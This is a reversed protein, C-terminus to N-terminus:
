TTPPIEEVVHVPVLVSSLENGEELSAWVEATVLGYIRDEQINETPLEAVEIYKPEVYETYAMWENDSYIYLGILQTGGRLTYLVVSGSIITMDDVSDKWGGEQADWMEGFSATSLVGDGLIDGFIYGVGTSELIYVHLCPANSTEGTDSMIMDDQNITDVVYTNVQMPSGMLTLFDAIPMVGGIDDGALYITADKEELLRYVPGEKIDNGTPLETVDIIGSGGGSGNKQLYQSTILVNMLDMIDM